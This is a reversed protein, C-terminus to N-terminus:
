APLGALLLGARHHELDESRQYPRTKLYERVRYNPALRAVDAVLEAARAGDGLRAHSAALNAVQAPRLAPHRRFASVADAYHTLAYRAMGLYHWRLQNGPDLALVQQAWDLSEELRGQLLRIDCRQAVIIPDNPNLSFAHEHHAAGREFDGDLLAIECLIRQCDSDSEDVEAARLAASRCLPFAETAPLYGRSFAQGYTCALWAHAQANGADLELASRLCRLAEANDEASGRHHHYKGRLLYDWAGLNGSPKRRANELEAAEMRAPLMAVIRRTIEDQVAFVDDLARDYREAWLHNGTAVDILQATIRLRQGSRRVSGELVYSVGLERGVEAVSINRGKYVFTSHRAIVFLSHFRSLETIIDESIGDAFYEDAAESGMNDFPLVAIRTRERPAPQAPAAAPVAPMPAAGDFAVRFVQVPASINKLQVEGRDILRFPLRDRVQCAIERSLCIGGPEAIGELRAAVNVGDGYIDDEKVIVDGLNIGIRLTLPSAGGKAGGRALAQQIEVACLVASVASAFEILLGDGLTKVIRGSCRAIAPDLLDQRLDILRALTGQEDVGMLRSYGVVDLVMIAALKRTVLMAPHPTDPARIVDM